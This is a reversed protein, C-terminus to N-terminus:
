LLLYNLRVGCENFFYENQLGDFCEKEFFCMCINCKFLQEFTIYTDQFKSYLSGAQVTLM